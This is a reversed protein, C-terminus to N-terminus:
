LILEVGIEIGNQGDFATYGDSVCWPAVAILEGRGYILPLIKREWPPICQAHLLKKLKSSHRRGPMQFREGGRRFCVSVSEPLRDINIGRGVVSHPILRIGVSDLALPERLNWKIKNSDQAKQGPNLALYLNRQFLCLKFGAWDMEAYDASRDIVTELFSDLSRRAPEPLSHTRIWHRILNIQRAEGLANLSDLKLQYGISLYGSGSTRCTTADIKALDELMARADSLFEASQSINEVAPAWRESLAPLIVHRLYNRDYRLDDNSPDTVYDLNHKDAYAIIQTKCFRLMPRVLMGKGFRRSEQIGSLGRAGASRMLNLMLTEAQDNRHHGTLLVDSESIQNRLWNYRAIRAQNEPVRKHPSFQELRTSRIPISRSECFHECHAAWEGSQPHLNHDIHLAVLSFDHRNRAEYMLNMLAATDPGGSFAVAFETTKDLASHRALVELLSDVDLITM